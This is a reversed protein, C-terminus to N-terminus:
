LNLNIKEMDDRWFIRLPYFPEERDLSYCFYCIGSIYNHAHLARQWFDRIHDIEKTYSVGGRGIEKFISPIAWNSPAINNVGIFILNNANEKLQREKNAATIKQFLDDTLFRLWPFDSESTMQWTICGAWKHEAELEINICHLLELNNELINEAVQDIYKDLNHNRFETLLRLPSYKIRFTKDDVFNYSSIIQTLRQIFVWDAFFGNLTTIEIGVSQDGNILKADIGEPGLNDEINENKSKLYCIIYREATLTCFDIDNSLFWRNLKGEGGRSYNELLYHVNRDLISLSKEMTPSSLWDIILPLHSLRKIRAEKNNLFRKIHDFM